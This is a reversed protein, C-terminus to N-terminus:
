KQRTYTISYGGDGTLKIKETNLYEINYNETFNITQGNGISRGSITIALCDSSIKYKDYELTAMNISSARGKPMFEIGQYIEPMTPVPATWKGIINCKHQKECAGVCIFSLIIFIKKM